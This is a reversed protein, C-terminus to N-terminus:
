LSHFYSHVQECKFYLIAMITLKIELKFIVNKLRIDIRSVNCM